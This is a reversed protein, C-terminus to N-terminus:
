RRAGVEAESMEVTNETPDFNGSIVASLPSLRVMPTTYESHAVVYNVLPTSARAGARHVDLPTTYSPAPSEGTVKLAADALPASVEPSPLATSAVLGIPAPAQGRMVIIAVMAVGAALASGLAATRWTSVTRQPPEAMRVPDAVALPLEREMAMRVRAAIDGKGRHGTSLPEGRLSAGIVAYRGWSARLAPDKLLRRTVLGAQAADLEGDFLASVQSNREQENM